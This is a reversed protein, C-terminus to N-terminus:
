LKFPIYLAIELVAYVLAVSALTLVIFPWVGTTVEAMGARSVAQIVYLNLGGPPTILAGGIIVV